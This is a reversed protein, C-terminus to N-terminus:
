KPLFYSPTQVDKAVNNLGRVIRECEERTADATFIFEGNSIRKKIVPAALWRVENFRCYIAIRQGRYSATINDLIWTGHQDFQLRIAFGGITDVIQASKINGEDIAADQLVNVDIPRERFIPVPGSRGTGDPNVELHLRLVTAEKDQKKQETTKCASFPGLILALFLLYTNFRHPWSKM